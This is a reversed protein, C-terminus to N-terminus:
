DWKELSKDIKNNFRKKIAAIMKTFWYVNLCNLALHASTCTIILWLPLSREPEFRLSDKNSLARLDSSTLYAGFVDRYINIAVYMGWVLRASFFTGLLTLGNYLQAKSGTMGMKDFFWHMNLFPTSLEHLIFACAYYNCCPRFALTFATLCSFAHVLMTTGFVDIHWLTALFDFLFYGCALAQVFADSESYAWIREERNMNRREHDVIIIYIATISIIISQFLSVCHM